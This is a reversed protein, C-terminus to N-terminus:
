AIADHYINLFFYRFTVLLRASHCRCFLKAVLSVSFIPSLLFQFAIHTWVEVAHCINDAVHLHRLVAVYVIHDRRLAQHSLLLPFLYRHFSVFRVCSIIVAELFFPTWCNLKKGNKKEQQEKLSHICVWKKQESANKECYLMHSLHSSLSIIWEYRKPWIACIHFAMKEWEPRHHHHHHHHDDHHEFTAQKVAVKRVTKKKTRIAKKRDEASFRTDTSESRWWARTATLALKKKKLNIQKEIKM